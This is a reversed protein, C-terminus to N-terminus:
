RVAGRNKAEDLPEATLSRHLATILGAGAAELEVTRERDVADGTIDDRGRQNRPTGAIADFRIATIGTLERHEIAGVRERGDVNGGLLFFGGTIQESTAFVDAGIEEAGSM